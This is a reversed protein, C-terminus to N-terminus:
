SIVSTIVITQSKARKAYCHWIPIDIVIAFIYILCEVYFFNKKEQVISCADKAQREFEKLDFRGGLCM